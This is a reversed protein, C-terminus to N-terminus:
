KNFYAEAAAKAEDLTDYDGFGCSTEIEIWYYSKEGELEADEVGVEALAEEEVDQYLYWKNDMGDFLWVMKKEM